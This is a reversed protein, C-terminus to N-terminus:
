VNNREKPRQGLSREVKEKQLFLFYCLSVTKKRSACFFHGNKKSSKRQLSFSAPHPAAGRM